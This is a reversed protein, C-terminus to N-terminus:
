RVDSFNFRAVPEFVHVGVITKSRIPFKSKFAMVKTTKTSIKLRYERSISHLQTCVNIESYSTTM